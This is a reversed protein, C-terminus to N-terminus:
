VRTPERRVRERYAAEDGLEFVYRRLYAAFAAPDRAAEVYEHLHAADEEYLGQCRLPHAGMPAPAIVDVYIDPVVREEAALTAIPERRIEEVTAIVLRSAQILLPDDGAAGIVLNGDPDARLAHVLAVDPAIAPVVAICTGAEYPDPIVRFDERVRMLDSGILGPVPTFPLGSAGAQLATLLV